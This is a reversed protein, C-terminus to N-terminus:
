NKHLHGFLQVMFITYRHLKGLKFSTTAAERLQGVEVIDIGDMVNLLLFNIPIVTLKSYYLLTVGITILLIFLYVPIFHNSSQKDIVPSDLYSNLVPKFKIKMLNNMLLIGM